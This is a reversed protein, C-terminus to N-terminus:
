PEIRTGPMLITSKPIVVIGDRVTWNKNDMETGRPFARIVTNAGVRVNKDIIAGEIISGEGIGMEIGGNTEIMQETDYYDQGMVISSNIKVGSNIQSRLGIVSDSIVAQNIRCGDALLVNNFDGGNIIAGPLFRPRTYIPDTPDTFCFPPEKQTLSLNTEYFSRITGIDEWYGEFNHGYVIYEHIARPIVEGGFDTDNYKTLIECLIQTNFLYIGMSGLFPRNADDRSILNKLIKEDTPKEFFDLIRNKKDTKLLGFRRADEKRIPQVAITIDAGNELHSGVLDEYNMRYLHDGALILIMDVKASQIEFLQKRVADATGQYWDERSSRQEAALIEVWGRSFADFTYTQAIHRHLSVSKFQTLIAIKNIGANICNSLPIDILRYKAAIPVAPKARLRTLPYLRAGRGGGLVLGLVNNMLAM